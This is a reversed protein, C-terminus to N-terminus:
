SRKYRRGAAQCVVGKMELALLLNGVERVSMNTLQALDAAELAEAGLAMVLKREDASLPVEPVAPPQGGPLAFSELLASLDQLVDEPKIVLRAVQDRILQNCGLSMPMDVDGPLAYVERNHDFAFRGTILAGGTEAAEVVVVGLCLGSIIRNRAPFNCADPQTGTLFETVLAGGGELIADALKWHRSPYIRDLGHGLIATTIGGAKVVAQHAHFDIGYALGSVVNIGAHAFAHAFQTSLRNGRDTPRRTGVIAIGPHANLDTSGRVYLVLPADFIERLRQPYDDSRFHLV